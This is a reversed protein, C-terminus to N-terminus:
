AFAPVLVPAERGGLLGAVGSATVPGGLHFGQAGDCDLAKIRELQAPSEIGEAVVQLHLSRGLAVIAEAIRADEPTRNMASVVPRAIKIVDVPYRGLYRVSSFGVGFGDIALTVGLEKLATLRRAIAPDDTMVQAEALELTLRAPQLGTSRLIGAVDEVLDPALLQRLSLNVHVSPAPTSDAAWGV